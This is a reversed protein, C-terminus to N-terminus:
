AQLRNPRQLAPKLRLQLLLKQSAQRGNQPPALGLQMKAGLGPVVRQLAVQPLFALQVQEGDLGQECLAAEAVRTLSSVLVHEV